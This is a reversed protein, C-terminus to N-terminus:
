KSRRKSTSGLKQVPTSVITKLRQAPEPLIRNPTDLAPTTGYRPPKGADPSLPSDHGDGAGCALRM